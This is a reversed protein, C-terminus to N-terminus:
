NDRAALHRGILDDVTKYSGLPLLALPDDDDDSDLEDIESNVVTGASFSNNATYSSQTALSPASLAKTVQLWDDAVADNINHSM